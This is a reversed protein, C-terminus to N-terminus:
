STMTVIRFTTDKGSYPQSREPRTKLMQRDMSFLNVRADPSLQRSERLHNVRKRLVNVEYPYQKSNMQKNFTARQRRFTIVSGRFNRSQPLLIVARLFRECNTSLIAGFRLCFNPIARFINYRQMTMRFVCCVM